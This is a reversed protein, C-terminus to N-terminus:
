ATTMGLHKLAGTHNANQRVMPWDLGGYNESIRWAYMGGDDSGVVMELSGDGELDGLTPAASVDDMTVKPFGAVENGDIRWAHVRNDTSGGLIEQMGDGDIDGLTIHRMYGGTQIPFGPLESGDSQWVYLRGDFACAAIELRKDRNLDGIAIFSDSLWGGAKM